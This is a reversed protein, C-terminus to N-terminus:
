QPLTFSFKSGKGVQSQVWIRGGHGEVLAKCLALGLGMGGPDHALRQELRYMRDFVAEHEERPIGRGQDTVSFVMESNQNRAEVTM